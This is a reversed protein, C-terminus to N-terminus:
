KHLYFECILKIVEENTTATTYPIIDPPFGYHIPHKYSLLIMPTGTSKALHAPGTDPAIFLDSEAITKQCLLPNGTNRNVEVWHAGCLGSYNWMNWEPNMKDNAQWIPTRSYTIIRYIKSDDHRHTPILPPNRYLHNFFRWKNTFDKTNALQYKWNLKYCNYLDLYYKNTWENDLDGIWVDNGKNHLREIEAMMCLADGFGKEIFSPVIMKEM